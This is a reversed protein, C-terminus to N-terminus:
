RLLLMKKTSIFDGAQIQYFYIGGSFNNAEFLVVHEGTPQKENVLTLIKEGLINHISLEVHSEKSLVYSITTTPNFPNPFNQNLKYSTPVQNNDSEDVASPQYFPFAGLDAITGDDDLPSSPDGADICPSGSQLRFDGKDPDVFLPDVSIDGVKIVLRNYNDPTNNWVNNYYFYGYSTSTVIVGYELNNAIINNRWIPRGGSFVGVGGGHPADNDVITNNTIIPECKGWISIGGGPAYWGPAGEGVKNRWIVNYRIIPNSGDSTIEIGGGEGNHTTTESATNDKIINHEIIPSSGMSCIIGGGLRTGADNYYGSGHTITFGSLVATSDEGNRFTVVSQQIDNLPWSGDIITSNAGASSIVCINKGNYNINEFYTGPLVLVTDGPISSDIAAQISEFNGTGNIDVVIVNAIALQLPTYLSFFM